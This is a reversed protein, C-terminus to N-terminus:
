KLIFEKKFPSVTNQKITLIESYNYKPISINLNYDEKKIPFNLELIGNIDTVYEKENVKIIENAIPNKNLDKLELLIALTDKKLKINFESIEKKSVFFSKSTFPLFNEKNVSLKYKKLIPINQLIFTGDNKSITSVVINDELDSLNIILNGLPKSGDSIIGSVSSYIEELKFDFNSITSFQKIKKVTGKSKFGNKEVKIVALGSKIEAKYSGDKKSTFKKEKKGIRLIINADEIPVGKLTSIVGTIVSPIEEVNLNLERKENASLSDLLTNTNNSLRYGSKSISINYEEPPLKIQYSGDIDSTTSLFDGKNNIFKIDFGGLLANENKIVGFVTSYLKKLKFLLYPNTNQDIHIKETVFLRTSNNSLEFKYDGFTLKFPAIQNNIDISNLLKDNYYIKLNTNNAIKLNKLKDETELFTLNENNTLTPYFYFVKFNPKLKVDFSSNKNQINLPISLKKYDNSSILAQYKGFPLEFNALNNEFLISKYYNKNNEFQIDIKGKKANLNFNVNSKLRKLKFLFSSNLLDETNLNFSFTQYDKENIEFLYKQKKYLSLELFGDTNTSFFKIENTKLNIQKISVQLKKTSFNDLVNLKINTIKSNLKFTFNNLNSSVSITENRTFFDNKKITIDYSAPFLSSSAIGKANTKLILDGIEITCDPVIQKNDDIIKFNIESFDDGILILFNIFLSFFILLIKRM